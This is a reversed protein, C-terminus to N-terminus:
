CVLLTRSELLQFLITNGHEGDEGRDMMSISMGTDVEAIEWMIDVTIQLAQTSTPEGRHPPLALLSPLSTILIVTAHAIRTTTIMVALGIGM